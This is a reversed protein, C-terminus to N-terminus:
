KIFREVILRMRRRLNKNTMRIPPHAAIIRKVKLDHFVQGFEDLTINFMQQIRCGIGKVRRLAAFNNKIGQAFDRRQGTYKFVARQIFLDLVQYDEITSHTERAKTDLKLISQKTQTLQNQLTLNAEKLKKLETYMTAHTKKLTMHRSTLLSHKATMRNMQKKSQERFKMAKM